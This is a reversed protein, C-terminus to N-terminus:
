ARLVIFLALVSFVVVMAQHLPHGYNNLLTCHSSLTYSNGFLTMQPQPCVSGHPPLRWGKLNDFTTDFTPMTTEDVATPDPTSTADKSLSDAIKDLKPALSDAANKAEGQRAYDSPFTSGSTSGSPNSWAIPDLVPTLQPASGTLPDYSPATQGAPVLYPYEIVPAPEILPDNYPNLNPNPNPATSVQLKEATKVNTVSEVVGNPSLALKQYNTGATGDPLTTPQLIYFDSGNDLRKKLQYVTTKQNADVGFAQVGDGSGTIFMSSLLSNMDANRPIFTPLVSPSDIPLVVHSPNNVTSATWTLNNVGVLDADYKDQTFGTNSRSFNYLGDQVAYNGSYLDCGTIPSLSDSAYGSPCPDVLILNSRTFSASDIALPDLAYRNYNCTNSDLLNGQTLSLCINEFSSGYAYNFQYTVQGAGPPLFVKVKYESPYILRSTAVPETAVFSRAPVTVKASTSLKYFQFSAFSMGVLNAVAQASIQSFVVATGDAAVAEAALPILALPLVAYSKSPFVCLWITLFPLTVRAFYRRFKISNIM